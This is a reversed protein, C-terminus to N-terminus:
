PTSSSVNFELRYNKQFEDRTQKTIKIAADKPVLANVLYVSIEPLHANTLIFTHKGVSLPGVSATAKIRIVGIGKKVDELAPFSADVLSLALVKEDLGIQINRLVLQAYAAVEAESIRGDLDKDIVVLLQDIIAVGPTLDISLDIRSTAVSVRAAQLYEDLRHAWADIALLLLLGGLLGPKM